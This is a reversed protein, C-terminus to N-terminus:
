STGWLVAHPLQCLLGLGWGAGLYQRLLWFFVIFSQTKCLTTSFDIGGALNEGAKGNM